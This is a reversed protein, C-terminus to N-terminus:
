RRGVHLMITAKAPDTEVRVVTSNIGDHTVTTNDTSTVWTLKAYEGILLYDGVKILADNFQVERFELRIMPITQSQTAPTQTAYNFGTAQVIVANSAFAAFEDGILEAALEVFEAPLTAVIAFGLYHACLVSVSIFRCALFVVFPWM